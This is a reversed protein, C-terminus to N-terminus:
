VASVVVILTTMDMILRKARHLAANGFEIKQISPSEETRHCSKPELIVKQIRM